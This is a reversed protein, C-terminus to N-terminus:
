FSIVVCIIEQLKQSNKLFVKKTSCRSAAPESVGSGTDIKLLTALKITQLGTVNNSLSGLVPKEKHTKCSKKPLKKVSCRSAVVELM